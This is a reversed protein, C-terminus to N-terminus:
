LSPRASDPGMKGGLYRMDLLFNFVKNREEKSVESTLALRHMMELTISVIGDM